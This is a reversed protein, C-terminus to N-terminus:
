DHNHDHHHEHHGHEHEVSERCPQAGSLAGNLYADLSAQVTGNAGTAVDIGYQAFFEIARRGMGGSVMVKVDHNHIFEPVMGPQHQAFFPNAISQVAKVEEGDLDVLIYSPCRGFHHSIRSDLGNKDETSFAIRM